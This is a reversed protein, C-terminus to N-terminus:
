ATVASLTRGWVAPQDRQVPQTIKTAAPNATESSKDPVPEGDGAVQGQAPMEAQARRHMLAPLNVDM